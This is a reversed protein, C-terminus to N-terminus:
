TQAKEQIKFPLSAGFMFFKRPWTGQHKHRKEPGSYQCYVELKYWLIGGWKYRQAESAELGQLFPFAPACRWNIGCYVEWKCRCYEQSSVLPQPNRFIGPKCRRSHMFALFNWTQSHKSHMCLTSDSHQKAHPERVREWRRPYRFRVRFWDLGYERGAWATSPFLRFRVRDTSPCLCTEKGERHPECAFENFISANGNEFRVRFWVWVSASYM